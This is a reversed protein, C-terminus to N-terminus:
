IHPRLHESRSDNTDQYQNNARHREEAVDKPDCWDVEVFQTKLLAPFEEEDLELWTNPRPRWEYQELSDTQRDGQHNVM